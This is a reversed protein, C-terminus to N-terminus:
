QGAGTMIKVIWLILPWVLRTFVDVLVALGLVRALTDVPLVMNLSYLWTYLTQTATIVETPLPHDAGSPLLAVAVGLFAIVAATWVATATLTSIGM